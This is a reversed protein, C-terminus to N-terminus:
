QTEKGQFKQLTEIWEEESAYEVSEGTSANQYSHNDAEPSLTDPLQDLTETRSISADLYDPNPPSDDTKSIRSQAPVDSNTDFSNDSESSSKRGARSATVFLVLFVLFLLLGAYFGYSEVMPYKLIVPFENFIENAARGWSAFDIKVGYRSLGLLAAILGSALVLLFWLYKLISTRM